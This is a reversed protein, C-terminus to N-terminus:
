KLIKNKNFHQIHTWNVEEQKQIPVQVVLVYLFPKSKTEM